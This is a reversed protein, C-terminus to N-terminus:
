FQSLLISNKERERVPSTIIVQTKMILDHLAQKKSTFLILYSNIVVFCFVGIYPILLIGFKIGERLFARLFDVKKFTAETVVALNVYIKGLTWGYKGTLFGSYLFLFLFIIIRYQNLSEIGQFASLFLLIIALPFWFLAFDAIFASIRVRLKALEVKELLEQNAQRIQSMKSSIFNFLGNKNM